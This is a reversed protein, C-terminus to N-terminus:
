LQKRSKRYQLPTQGTQQLFHRFFKTRDSCGVDSIITGVPKDTSELLFCAREIRAADLYRTLTMGTYQKFSRSFHSPSYHRQAALEELTLREACNNKIYALLESDIGKGSRMPLSMKRFLRILLLNLSCRLALQSGPLLKQADQEMSLILMEVQNREEGSFRVVCNEKAVITQFDKFDNLALLAFANEPQVLNQHIFEPKMLINIYEVSGESFFSHTCHYNVMLMSGRSVPYATDNIIHVCRGRLLYIIEVFDHTHTECGSASVDHTIGVLGDMFYKHGSLTVAM